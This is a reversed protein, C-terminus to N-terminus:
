RYTHVCALAPSSGSQINNYGLPLVSHPFAGMRQMPIRTLRL